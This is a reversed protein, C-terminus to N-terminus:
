FNNPALQENINEIQNRNDIGQQNNLFEKDNNILVMEVFIIIIVSSIMIGSFIIKVTRKNLESIKNKIFYIFEKDDTYYDKIDISDTIEIINILIIITPIMALVLSSCLIIIHFDSSKSKLFFINVLCLIFVPTYSIGLIFELFFFSLRDGFSNSESSEKWDMKKSLENELDKKQRDSLNLKSAYSYFHSVFNPDDLTEEYTFSFLFASIIILSLKLILFIAYKCELKM